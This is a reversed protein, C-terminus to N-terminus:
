KGRFALTMVNGGGNNEALKATKDFGPVEEPVEEPAGKPEEEPVVRRRKRARDGVGEEEVSMNVQDRWRLVEGILRSIEREKKLDRKLNRVQLQLDQIMKDKMKTSEKTDWRPRMGSVGGEGEAGEMDADGEDEEEWVEGEERLEERLAKIAKDQVSLLHDRGRLATVYENFMAKVAEAEKEVARIHEKAADMATASDQTEAHQYQGRKQLAQDKRAITGQLIKVRVSLANAGLRAANTEDRSVSLNQSLIQNDARLM